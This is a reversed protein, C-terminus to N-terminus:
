DKKNNHLGDKIANGVTGESVDLMRAIQKYTYGKSRLALIAETPRTKERGIQKGKARANSMGLKVRESVLDRELAAIASIIVFMAKGIATSLDVNESLSVFNVELDNFEELSDLLFKTSRAFRSFSYVIVTGVKGKRVEKMLRDLEPRSSKTGSVGFDEYLEYNQIQKSKCYEVLARKQSELGNQQMNTSTRCYIAVTKM